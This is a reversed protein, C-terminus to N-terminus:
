LLVGMGFHSKLLTAMKWFSSNELLEGDYIYWLAM